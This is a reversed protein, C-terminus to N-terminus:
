YDATWTQLGKKVFDFHELHAHKEKLAEIVDSQYLSNCFILLYGCNGAGLVKGGIAGQKQAMEYLGDIYSNSIKQSFTKKIGWGEHFLEGFKKLDGKILADKIALTLHSLKKYQKVLDVGSKEFTRQQDSIISGSERSEGFRFLLLNFQLELFVDESIRLPTVLIDNHRFEILNLGGFATSYQDQWGGQIGLDVREAQYALDALHYSNLHNENRFHNFAGLISVSIASSGGLGSGPESDSSTELEFGFEPEMIHICAKILGLSGEQDNSIQEINEFEIRQNYDKSTLVIKSDSRVKITTYCYKNITSSLVCGPNSNFFFSMDTGGGSFSVRMPVRSRIVKKENRSSARFDSSQLIDVLKGAFDLVPINKVQNDFLRLIQHPSNETSAHVYNENVICEIPDDILVGETLKRRIDGDTVVGLCCANEDVVVGFGRGETQIALDNLGRMVERISQNNRFQIEKIYQFSM